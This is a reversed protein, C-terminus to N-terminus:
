RTLIRDAKCRFCRSDYLRHGCGDTHHDSVVDSGAIELDEDDHEVTNILEELAFLRDSATM